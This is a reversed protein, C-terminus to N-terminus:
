AMTAAPAAFALREAKPRLFHNELAYEIHELGFSTVAPAVQSERGKFATVHTHTIQNLYMLGGFEMIPPLPPLFVLRAVNRSGLNGLFAGLKDDPLFESYTAVFDELKIIPCILLEENFVRENAADIDCEHTLVYILAEGTVFLGREPDYLPCQVSEYIKGKGLGISTGSSYFRGVLDPTVFSAVVRRHAEGPTM